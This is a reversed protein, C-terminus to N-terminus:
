HRRSAADAPCLLTPVWRPYLRVQWALAFAALKRTKCCLNYSASRGKRMCGLVVSSDTLLPVWSGRLAPCRAVFKAALLVAEFELLNNHAPYRWRRVDLEVWPTTTVGKVLAPTPPEGPTTAWLPTNRFDVSEQQSLGRAVVAGGGADRANSGEADTSLLLPAIPMRVSVVALHVLRSALRLEQRATGWWPVRKGKNLRVFEYLAHFTAYLSRHALAAWNFHGLLRELADIEVYEQDAIWLGASRLLRMRDAPLGITGASGDYWFGLVKAQRGPAQTEHCLLGARTLAARGRALVQRTLEQTKGIVYFNDIYLGWLVGHESLVLRREDHIPRSFHGEEGLEATLIRTGIHQMIEASRVGGMALRVYCPYAVEGPMFSDGTFPCTYGGPQFVAEGVVDRLRVPKLCSYAWMERITQVRTYAAEVDGEGVWFNDAVFETSHWPGALDTPGAKAQGESSAGGIGMYPNSPRCDIIKRLTGKGVKEIFFIDNVTKVKGAKLFGILQLDVARKLYDHYAPLSGFVRGQRVKTGPPLDSLDGRLAALFEPSCTHEMYARDTDAPEAVRQVDGKTLFTPKTHGSRSYVERGGATQVHLLERLAAGGTPEARRSHDQRLRKAAQLLHTHVGVFESDDGSVRHQSPITVGGLSNLAEITDDALVQLAERKCARGRVRKSTSRGSSVSPLLPVPFPDFKGSSFFQTPEM